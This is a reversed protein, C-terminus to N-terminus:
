FILTLSVLHAYRWAKGDTGDFAKTPYADGPKFIGFGYFFQVDPLANFTIAMDGAHGVDANAETAASDSIGGAAVNKRYYSYKLQVALNRLAYNSKLPRFYTGIRYVQLNALRPKLALGGSFTGFNQFANYSGATNSQSGNVVRTSDGDGTGTAFDALLQPDINKLYPLSWTFNVLAAAASITASESVGNLVQNYTSGGQYIVDARYRYASNKIYGRAGLGGYWPNYAYKASAADERILDRSIMTYAFAQTGLYEPSYYEGAFFVRQGSNQVGSDPALNPTNVFPSPDGNCGTVNLACFSSGYDGSYVAFARVQGYRYKGTYQVGDAFNAFLVGQEIAYFNRGVVFHHNEIRREAAMIELAGVVNTQQVGALPEIYRKVTLLGRATAEWKEDYTYKAFPRYFGSFLGPNIIPDIYFTNSAILGGRLYHKAPPTDAVEQPAPVTSIPLNQTPALNEENTEEADERDEHAPKAKDSKKEGTAADKAAPAAGLPVSLLLVCFFFVFKYRFFDKM